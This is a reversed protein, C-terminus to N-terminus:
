RPGHKAAWKEEVEPPRVYLPTLIRPDVYLGKEARERGLHYVVEAKPRYLSDPLITRDSAEVAQRHAQLGEGLVACTPSQTQLFALPEVEAPDSHREYFPAKARLNSSLRFAAAYVHGRKADVIVAVDNPPSSLKLANAAIVDLTPVAVVRAGTALAIARAAAVAIRLGTFSGPGISVYITGVNAPQVGRRNCLTDIVPFFEVAQARPRTFVAADLVEDDRGLAVSGTACSTEFALSFPRDAPSKPTPPVRPIICTGVFM